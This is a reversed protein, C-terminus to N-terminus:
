KFPIISYLCTFWLWGIEVSSSCWNSRRWFTWFDLESFFLFSSSSVFFHFLNETDKLRNTNSLTLSKLITSLNTKFSKIDRLTDWSCPTNCSLILIGPTKVWGTLYSAICQINDSQACTWPLDTTCRLCCLYLTLFFCWSGWDQKGLYKHLTRIHLWHYSANLVRRFM